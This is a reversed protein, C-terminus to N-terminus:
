GKIADIMDIRKQYREGSFVAQLWVTVMVQALEQTLFDSPLVLVNSKDDERSLQAIEKNWALAAYV